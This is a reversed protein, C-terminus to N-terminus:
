SGLADRGGDVTLTTGTIWGADHSALFAVAKAIDEPQGLRGLPFSALTRQLAQAPDPFQAFYAETRVSEVQGPMVANVRIRPALDVALARTLSLLGGKAVAYPLSNRTPRVARYSGLTVISAHESATLLPLAAQVCLWVAELNVAHAARWQAPTTSAATGAIPEGAACVLIDLASLRAFFSEVQEPQTVDCSGDLVDAVHVTGGEARLQAAIAAGIGRFGGTVACHLGTFRSM